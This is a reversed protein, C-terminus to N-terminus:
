ASLLCAMLIAISSAAHLMWQDPLAEEIGIRARSYLSLGPFAWRALEHATFRGPTVGQLQAMKCYLEKGRDIKDREIHFDESQGLTFLTKDSSSGESVRLRKM